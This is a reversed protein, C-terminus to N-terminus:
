KQKRMKKTEEKQIPKFKRESEFHTVCSNEEQIQQNDKRKRILILSMLNDLRKEQNDFSSTSLPVGEQKKRQGCAVKNQMNTIKDRKIIEVISDIDTAQGKLSSIYKLTQFDINSENQKFSKAMLYTLM